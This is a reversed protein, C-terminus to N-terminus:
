LVGKLPPKGHLNLLDDLTTSFADIPRTLCAPCSCNIVRCRWAQTNYFLSNVSQFTERYVEQVMIIKYTYYVEHLISNIYRSPAVFNFEV